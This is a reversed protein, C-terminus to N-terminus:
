PLSPALADGWIQYGNLTPHVADSMLAVPINGQADLLRPGIDLFDAKAEKALAELGENIRAAKLRDPHTSPNRCPLIAMLTIKAEPTKSRIRRLCARVGDVVTAPSEDGGLVHNAGIMLVMRRPSIGDLEGHDIRWLVQQVRDAGFGLNLAPRRTSFLHDWVAKGVRPSGEKPIGGFHQTISDGIFVVEPKTSRAKLASRHRRMWNYTGDGGGPAPTLLPNPQHDLIPEDGMLQALMPEVAQVWAEAGAPGPHLLDWMLDTNITGDPRLFVYNVDLWFVHKGDALQATLEGARRCTEICMASSNFAPPSAGIEADGGRPFIRLVLIRTTPHRRRIVDVVARPGALIEEPSHARPFHRDDSNNTGILIMAVKPSRPFDLEGNLLNWLVNETRYGNHGLNIAHRPAFHREWVAKLPEYKGGLEGMIHTISDGILVLDYEGAKVAAVKETHRASPSPAPYDADGPRPSVAALASGLTTVFLLLLQRM